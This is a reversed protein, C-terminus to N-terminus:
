RPKAKVVRRKQSKRARIAASADRYTTVAKVKGDKTIKIGKVPKSTMAKAIDRGVDNMVDSVFLAELERRVTRYFFDLKDQREHKPNEYVLRAAYAAIVELLFFNEEVRGLGKAADLIARDIAPAARKFRELNELKAKDTM